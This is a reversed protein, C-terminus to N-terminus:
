LLGPSSRLESLVHSMGAYRGDQQQVQSMQDGTDHM